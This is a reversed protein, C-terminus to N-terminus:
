LLSKVGAAEMLSDAAADVGAQRIKDSVSLYNDLTTKADLHGMQAQVAPIDAGTESQWSGASGRLDNARLHQFGHSRVVNWASNISTVHGYKASSPFVWIGGVEAKRQILLEVLQPPLAVRQDRGTKNCQDEDPVGSMEKPIIWFRGTLDLDCWRMRMCEGLRRSTFLSTLFISRMTGSLEELAAMFAPMDTIHLRQEKRANGKESVMAFLWPNAGEWRLERIAHNWMAKGLAQVRNGQIPATKRMDLIKNRAMDHTVDSLRKNAWKSYHKNWIAMNNKSDQVKKNGRRRARARNQCYDLWVAGLLIENKEAQVEAVPDKGSLYDANLATVKDRAQDATISPHSGITMIVRRGKITRQFYFTKASPTVRLFLHPTREDGYNVRKGKAPTPLANITTKGFIFKDM